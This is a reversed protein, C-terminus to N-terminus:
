ARRGKWHVSVCFPFPGEEGSACGRGEPANCMGGRRFFADRRAEGRRGPEMGVQLSPSITGRGSGRRPALRAADNSQASSECAFLFLWVPSGPLLLLLFPWIGPRRAAASPNRKRRPASPNSLVTVEPFTRFRM